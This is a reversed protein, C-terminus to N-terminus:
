PSLIKKQWIKQKLKYVERDHLRFNNGQWFEFCTPAIKIGVWYPPRSVQIKEFKKEYEKFRNILVKRSRIETSQKSAWAGLQSKRPRSSFYQDSEKDNIISGKGSIRIQKKLSEWYFCMALNNNKVFQKGKNSKINTFFVFGDPLVKKLLVMRSYPRNKYSTSLNFATHDFSGDNKAEKYWNKFKRLPNM